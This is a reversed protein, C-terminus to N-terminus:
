APSAGKIEDATWPVLDTGDKIQIEIMVAERKKAPEKFLVARITKGSASIRDWKELDHFYARKPTNLRKTLVGATNEVLIVFENIKDDAGTLFSDAEMISIGITKSQGDKLTGEWLTQAGAGHKTLADDSKARFGWKRSKAKHETEKVSGKLYFEAEIPGHFLYFGFKKRDTSTPTLLSDSSNGADGVSINLLGSMRVTIKKDSM